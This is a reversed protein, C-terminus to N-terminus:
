DEHGDEEQDNDEDDSDIGLYNGNTDYMVELKNGKHNIEVDYILKGEPQIVEDAELLKAGPYKENIASKVVQPLEDLSIEQENEDKQCHNEKDCSVFGFATMFVLAAIPTKM